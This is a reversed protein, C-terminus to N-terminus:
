NRFIELVSIKFGFSYTRCAKKPIFDILYATEKNYKGEFEEESIVADLESANYSLRCEDIM